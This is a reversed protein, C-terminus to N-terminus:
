VNPEQYLCNFDIPKRAVTRSLIWCFAYMGKLTVYGYLTKRAGKCGAQAAVYEARAIAISALVRSRLSYPHKRLHLVAPIAWYYYGAKTREPARAFVPAGLRYHRDCLRGQKNLETCIVWQLSGKKNNNQTTSDTLTKVSSLAAVQGSTRSLLDNTLMQNTTSNYLGSNKEGQSVAALGTVGGLIQEIIAKAKEDSVEETEVKRNSTSTSTHTGRFMGALQDIAGVWEGVGSGGGIDGTAM